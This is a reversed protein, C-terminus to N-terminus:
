GEEARIREVVARVAQTVRDKADRVADPTTGLPRAADEASAGGRGHREFAEWAEAEFRPRVEAMARELLAITWQWNWLAEAGDPDRAFLDADPAAAPRERQHRARIAKVTARRLCGRLHGRSPDHEIADEVRFFGRLVERHVAEAEDADAGANHAFAVIVPGYRDAFDQQSLECADAGARRLFITSRTADPDAGDAAGAVSMVPGATRDGLTVLFVWPGLALFDHDFLRTPENARLRITNLYTGHRSELDTVRWAGDTRELTAHRRSIAPEALCVTSQLARGFTVADDGDFVFPGIDPGEMRELRVADDAGHATSKRTGETEAM